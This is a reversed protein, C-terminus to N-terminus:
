GRDKGSGKGRDEKGSEGPEDPGEANKKQGEVFRRCQAAYVANAGRGGAKPPPGVRSRAARRSAMTRPSM